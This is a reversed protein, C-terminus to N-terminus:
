PAQNRDSTPTVLDDATYWERDPGASRVELWERSVHHFFFPTGWADLLAGDADLRPHNSTFIGLRGPNSGRLANMMEANDEGAPFQGFRERYIRFFGLLIEPEREPPFVASGFSVADPHPSNLPPPSPPTLAPIDAPLRGAPIPTLPPVRAQNTELSTTAGTIGPGVGDREHLLLTGATLLLGTVVALRAFFSVDPKL